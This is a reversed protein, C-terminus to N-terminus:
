LFIRICISALLCVEVKEVPQNSPITNLVRIFFFVFNESTLFSHFLILARARRRTVVDSDPHRAARSSSASREQEPRPFLPAPPQQM